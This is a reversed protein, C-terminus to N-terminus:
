RRARIPWDLEPIPERIGCYLYRWVKRRKEVWPRKEKRSMDALYQSIQSKTFLALIHPEVPDERFLISFLRQKETDSGNQLIHLWDEPTEKTNGWTCTKYAAHIQELMEETSSM